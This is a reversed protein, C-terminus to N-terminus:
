EPDIASPTDSDHRARFHDALKTLSSLLRRTEQPGLADNIGSILAATAVAFEDHAAVGKDTLRVMVRRADGAFRNRQVFGNKELRKLTQGVTANGIDLRASIETQSLPSSKWLEHVIYSEAPHVQTGVLSSMFSVTQLRAAVQLMYPVSEKIPDRESKPHEDRDAKAEAASDLAM